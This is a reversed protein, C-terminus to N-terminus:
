PQKPFYKDHLVARFKVQIAAAKAPDVSDLQVTRNDFFWILREADSSSIPENRYIKKFVGLMLDEDIQVM